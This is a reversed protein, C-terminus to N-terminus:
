SPDSRQPLLHLPVHWSSPEETRPVFEPVDANLDAHLSSAPSYHTGFTAPRSQDM